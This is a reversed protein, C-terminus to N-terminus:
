LKLGTQVHPSIFSLVAIWFQISIFFYFCSCSGAIIYNQPRRCNKMRGTLGSSYMWSCKWNHIVTVNKCKTTLSYSIFTKWKTTSYVITFFHSCKMLCYLSVTGTLVGPFSCYLSQFIFCKDLSVLLNLSLRPSQFAMSVSSHLSSINSIPLKPLNAAFNLM